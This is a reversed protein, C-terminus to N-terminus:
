PPALVLFSPATVNDYALKVWIPSRAAAHIRVEDILGRVPLTDDSLCLEYVSSIAGPVTLDIMTVLAGNLYARMQNNGRDIVSFLLSWNGVLQAPTSSFSPANINDAADRIWQRWSDKGLEVDYGPRGASSGGKWLYLDYSSLLMEPHVWMEISFSEVGPNLSPSDPACIVDAGDGDSEDFQLAAGVQGPQTSPSGRQLKLDNHNATADASTDLFTDSFHWAARFESWVDPGNCESTIDPGYILLFQLASPSVEPLQVWAEIDGTGPSYRLIECPMAFGDLTAFAIHTAGSAHAGLDADTLVVSLPFKMLPAVPPRTITVIRRVGGTILRADPREDVPGAPKSFCGAIVLAAAM